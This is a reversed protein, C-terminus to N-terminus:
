LKLIDDDEILYIAGTGLGSIKVSEDISIQLLTGLDLTTNLRQSLELMNTLEDTHQHELKEAKKRYTIDEIIGAAGLITDKKSKFEPLLRKKQKDLDLVEKSKKGKGSFTGM